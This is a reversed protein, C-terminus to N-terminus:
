IRIRLGKMGGKIQLEFWINLKNKISTESKGKELRTQPCPHHIRKQWQKLSFLPMSSWPRHFSSPWDFTLLSYPASILFAQNSGAPSLSCEQWSSQDMDAKLLELACLNFDAMSAQIHRDTLHFGTLVFITKQSWHNARPKTLSMANEKIPNWHLRLLVCTM